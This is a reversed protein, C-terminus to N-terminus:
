QQMQTVSSGRAPTWHLPSLKISEKMAKKLNDFETQLSDNWTFVASHSSLKQLLPFTLMVGPRFKKIQAAMGCARQVEVKSEPTKLDLLAQLKEESPSMCVRREDDGKTKCAEITVGGFTVHTGIQLKDPHLRMNKKLCMQLMKEMKELVGLDSASVLVHDINKYFGSVGRIDQDTCIDFYDSLVSAGQPLICYRFKGAPLVITFLDCSDEHINVQHYGSSMDVSCFMTENSQLRKLIHSSGDLSTGVRKTNHNVNRLDTVLWAKITSDKTNKQVFFARSCNSTPHHVPELCGSKLLRALEEAATDQLHRPTESPIMANGMDRSSDVLEVKVPDM